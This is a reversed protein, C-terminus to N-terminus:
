EKISVQIKFVHGGGECDNSTILPTTVNIFDNQKMFIHISNMAESRIRAISGFLQNRIRLHLYERFYPMKYSSTRQAFPYVEPDCEGILEISDCMLEVSQLRGPSAVLRGICQVCCGNHLRKTPSSILTKIFYNKVKKVIIKRNSWKKM